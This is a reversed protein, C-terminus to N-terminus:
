GSGRVLKSPSTLWRRAIATLEGAVQAESLGSTDVVVEAQAYLPQRRVWLRELEEKARPREHMPRRDGQAVVRIWHDDPTAKLWVTTTRRRLIEFAEEDAVIGGSTALITPATTTGLLRDLVDRCHRRYEFEGGLSFLEPLPVGCAQEVLEDHEVFLLGLATALRRGVTTKGAGRLGLLALIRPGHSPEAHGLGEVAQALSLGLALCLSQLKLLSLNGQGAEVAAVFRVSMSSARALHAQSWGLSERQRRLRTGLADLLPHRADERVM